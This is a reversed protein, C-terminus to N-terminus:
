KTEGFIIRIDMFDLIFYGLGEVVFYFVLYEKNELVGIWEVDLNCKVEVFLSTRM